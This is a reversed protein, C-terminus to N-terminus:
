GVVFDGTRLFAIVERLCGHEHASFCDLPAEKCVYEHTHGPPMGSCEPFWSAIMRAARVRTEHPLDPMEREFNALIEEVTKSVGEEENRAQDCRDQGVDRVSEDRSRIDPLSKELADALNAADEAEVAQYDNTTYNWKDWDEPEWRYEPGMDPASTGMPRWGYMVGLALIKEWAAAGLSYPGDRGIFDMGMEFRREESL